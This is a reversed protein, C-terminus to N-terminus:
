LGHYLIMVNGEYTQQMLVHPLQGTKVHTFRPSVQLDGKDGKEQRQDKQIDTAKCNQVEAGTQQIVIRSVLRNIPKTPTFPWVVHKEKALSAMAQNASIPSSDEVNCSQTNNPGPARSIFGTADTAGEGNELEPPHCEM